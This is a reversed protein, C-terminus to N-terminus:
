HVFRTARLPERLRRPTARTRSGSCRRARYIAVAPPATGGDHLWPALGRRLYSTEIGLANCVNVFSFPWGDDNSLFWKRAGEFVRQQHRGSLHAFRQLCSVADELVALMLRHEPRLNVNRLVLQAPLVIGPQLVKTPEHPILM